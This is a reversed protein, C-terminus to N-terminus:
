RVRRHCCFFAEIFHKEQDLVAHRSTRFSTLVKSANLASLQASHFKNLLLYAPIDYEIDSKQTGSCCHGCSTSASAASICVDTFDGSIQNEFVKGTLHDLLGPPSPASTKKTCVRRRSLFKMLVPIGLM